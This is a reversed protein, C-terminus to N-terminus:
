RASRCSGGAASVSMRHHKVWFFTISSNSIGSVREISGVGTTSEQQGSHRGSRPRAHFSFPKWGPTILTRYRGVEIYTGIAAQRPLPDSQAAALYVVSGGVNTRAYGFGIDLLPRLKPVIELSVGGVAEIAEPLPVLAMVGFDQASVNATGTGQESETGIPTLHSEISKFTIGVGIRITYELGLGVTFNRSKEWANGYIVQPGLSSTYAFRGLDLDVQSYGAGVSLGFPLDVFSNFRVGANLAWADYTLGSLNFEPLWDTKPTYFAANFFNNLSFLGLQGPNQMPATANDSGVSTGIGGMGNGDISPTILLFPVASEGQAHAAITFTSLCSITFLILRIGRM